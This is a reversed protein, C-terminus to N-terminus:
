PPLKQLFSSSTAGRQETSEAPGLASGSSALALGIPLLIDGSLAEAIVYKFLPFCFFFFFPSIHLLQAPPLPVSLSACAEHAKCAEGEPREGPLRSPGVRDLGAALLPSSILLSYSTFFIRLSM